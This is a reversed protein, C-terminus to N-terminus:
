PMQLVGDRLEWRIGGFRRIFWRDHSVALVPGPFDLVAREFAELVDLSLHNTPEDLALVNPQAAIIRAIILKQRQGQSIQRLRKTLDEVQFLGSGVLANTAEEPTIGPQYSQIERTFVALLTEEPEGPDGEQALYGIRAAAVHRVTGADPAIEGLLIRLLTTKGAGNPGTLVIRADAAITLDLDRFLWRGDREAGIRTARIIADSRLADHEFRPRFRLPKPPHPVPDADIRALREQASRVAGAITQEAWQGKSKYQATDNDRPPRKHGGTREAERVRRRLDAIEDRQRAYAEEWQTVELAKAVRYADYDGAYLRLQGTQPPPGSHYATTARTPLDIELIRTVTRNLFQRDHSVALVAGPYAALYEELWTLATSDLHNTPEDLLLVDPARLLLAALGVRAREGGSLTMLARTRELRALGLGALVSEVRHDLDYGGRSQFIAQIAGYEELLPELADGCCAGLECELDRMRTAIAQLNGQAAALLDAITEGALDPASQPLYGRVIGREWVITGSDPAENGNLLRLLTSKGAGNMGVIGARDHAGLALSIGELVARTGYTKSLDHVTLVM